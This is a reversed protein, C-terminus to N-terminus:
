LILQKNYQKVNNLQSIFYKGFNVKCDNSYKYITLSSTDDMDDITISSDDFLYIMVNNWGGLIINVHSDCGVYLIQGHHRNIEWLPVSSWMICSVDTTLSNQGKFDVYLSYDYGKVLDCDKVLALDTNENIFDHFNELIYEKSLGKGKYCHTIFYPISQQRLVLNVLKQKDNGCSRWLKRYENCLPATIGGQIANKRFYTMEDIM